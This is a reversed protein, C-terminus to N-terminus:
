PQKVSTMKTRTQLAKVALKAKIAVAPSEDATLSQLATLSRKYDIDALVDAGKLRLEPNNSKIWDLAQDVGADPSIGLFREIKHAEMQLCIASDGSNVRDEEEARPIERNLADLRERYLNMFEASKDVIAGSQLGYVRTWFAVCSDGSIADSDKVRIVLEKKGDNNIDQVIDHVDDVAWASFGQITIGKASQRIVEIDNCYHRGNVDLSAVLSYGDSGALHFFGSSCVNRDEVLAKIVDPESEYVAHIFSSIQAKSPPNASHLASIMTDWERGADKYTSVILPTPDTSDDPADPSIHLVSNQATLSANVIVVILITSLCLAFCTRRMVNKRRKNFRAVGSMLFM